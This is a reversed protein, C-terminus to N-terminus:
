KAAEVAKEAADKAADVAAAPDPAANKASDAVSTATEKVEEALAKANTTIKPLEKLNGLLAKGMKMKAMFGGSPKIGKAEDIIAKLDAPVTALDATMSTLDAGASKLVAADTPAKAVSAKVAELKKKSDILKNNLADAKDFVGDAAANGTKTLNLAADDGANADAISLSFTLAIAALAKTFTNM